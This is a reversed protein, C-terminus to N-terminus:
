IPNHTRIQYAASLRRVNTNDYPAWSPGSVCEVSIVRVGAWVFGPLDFVLAHAVQEAVGRAASRTQGYCDVDVSPLDFPVMPRGGGFRVVQITSEPLTAPLETCLRSSTFRPTLWDVLLAEIDGYV